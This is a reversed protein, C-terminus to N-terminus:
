EFTIEKEEITIKNFDISDITNIMPDSIHNNQILYFISRLILNSIIKDSNQDNKLFKFQEKILNNTHNKM